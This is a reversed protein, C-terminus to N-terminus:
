GEEALHRALGQFYQQLPSRVNNKNSQTPAEEAAATTTQPVRVPPPSPPTLLRHLHHHMDDLGRQVYTNDVAESKGWTSMIMLSGVRESAFGSPPFLKAKDRCSLRLLPM